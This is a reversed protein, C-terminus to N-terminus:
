GNRRNWEAVADVTTRIQDETHNSTIFFRLRSANEPVTPYMIPLVYIGNDFLHRYLQICPLSQGLIIPIVASGASTGTNLDYSRALDLFFRARYRLRKVREPEKRLLRIAALAAAANPPTIGVSYVFGPTTYKLYKILEGSGAIYGGCSAFAKSLTGMWLDVESRDIAYHEGIGGGNKGLVGVSHAEDVMLLAKHRRKIEIFKPLDPIDGDMSYVGEIVILVQRYKFRQEKLIRDLSEWNNHPFPKITAGSLKCGTQVSAHILSDYIVLDEPGSIHGIVAENTIYGGIFVVCDETGLFDAIENELERHLPREGSALRSASVSTGYTDIADKAAQTIVPDGSMGIYNYGAYNIYSKGGISTTNTNLGESSQFYIAGLGQQELEKMMGMMDTYEPPYVVSTPKTDTNEEHSPARERLLQKLLQRKDDPSLNKMKDPQDVM